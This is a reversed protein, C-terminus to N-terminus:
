FGERRIRAIYAEDCLPIYEKGIKYIEYIGVVVVVPISWKVIQTLKM